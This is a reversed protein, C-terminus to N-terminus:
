TSPFTSAMGIGCVGTSNNSNDKQIYVYGNNGWGEGWSNRVIWYDIGDQTGYGVIGVAHDLNQGCEEGTIVGESYFQFIDTDAEIAISIPQRNVVEQMSLQEGSNINYCNKIINGGYRTNCMSLEVSCDDDVARYKIEDETCLGGKDIIYRFSGDMMGGNCGNNGYGTSCDVLEQPSLQPVSGNQNLAVFSEYTEVTSFAWCSGCQQQDKVPSVIRPVSRWDITNSVNSGAFHYESCYNDNTVDRFGHSIYKNRFESQTLDGFKNMRKTYGVNMQTNHSIIKRYNESFVDLRYTYEDLSNYHKNNDIIWNNFESQIDTSSYDFNVASVVSQLLLVLFGWM